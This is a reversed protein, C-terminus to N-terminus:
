AVHRLPLCTLGLNFFSFFLIWGLKDSASVQNSEGKLFVLKKFFGSFSKNIGQHM